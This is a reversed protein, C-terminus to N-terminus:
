ENHWGNKAFLHKIISLAAPSADLSLFHNWIGDRYPFYVGQFHTKSIEDQNLSVGFIIKFGMSHTLNGYWLYADLTKRDILFRIWGQHHYDYYKDMKDFKDAKELMHKFELSSPNEYIQYEHKRYAFVRELLIKFNNM